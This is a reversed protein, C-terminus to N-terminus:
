MSGILMVTYVFVCPWTQWHWVECMILDRHKSYIQISDWYLAFGLYLFPFRQHQEWCIRKRLSLPIWPRIFVGSSKVVLEDGISYNGKTKGTYIHFATLIESRNAEDPSSRWLVASEWHANVLFLDFRARTTQFTTAEQQQQPHQTEDWIGEQEACLAGCLSRLGPTWIRHLPSKYSIQPTKTM